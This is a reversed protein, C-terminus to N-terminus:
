RWEVMVETCSRSSLYTNWDSNVLNAVAPHCRKYINGKTIRLLKKGSRSAGKKTKRMVSDKKSDLRKPTFRLKLPSHCLGHRERHSYRSISLMYQITYYLYSMQVPNTRNSSLQFHSQVERRSHYFRNVWTMPGTVRVSTFGVYVVCVVLSM